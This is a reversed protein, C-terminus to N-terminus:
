SPIIPIINPSSKGVKQDLISVQIQEYAWCRWLNAPQRGAAETAEPEWQSGANPRIMNGHHTHIM